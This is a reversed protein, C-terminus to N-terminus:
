SSSRLLVTNWLTVVGSRCSWSWSWNKPRLGTTRFGATQSWMVPYMHIMRFVTCLWLKRWTHSAVTLLNDKFIALEWYDEVLRKIKFSVPFRKIYELAIQFSV